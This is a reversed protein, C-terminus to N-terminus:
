SRCTVSRQISPSPWPRPMRTRASRAKLSGAVHTNLNDLVVRIKPATPFHIDVLDRMAYAWDVRTRRATPRATSRPAANEVRRGHARAPAAADDPPRDERSPTRGKRVEVSLGGAGREGRSPVEDKVRQHCPCATLRASAALRPAAARQAEVGFPDDSIFITKAAALTAAIM